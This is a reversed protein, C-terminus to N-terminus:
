FELNFDKRTMPQPIELGEGGIYSLPQGEVSLYVKADPELSTASYLVQIIRGQMSASGGGSTFEQSLNIRIQKDQSTASLVKTNAPIASSLEVEPPAQNILINLVQAIADDNNKAKLAIPVAVLKNKQSEIWYVALEGDVARAVPAPQNIQEIANPASVQSNPQNNTGNFNILVATAAGGVIAATLLGLWATKPLSNHPIPNKM